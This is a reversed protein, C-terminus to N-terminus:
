AAALVMKYAKDIMPNGEVTRLFLNENYNRTRRIPEAHTAFDSVANVFRYGNRSVDSLDPADFYRRKMDNLLRLNNKRQVEPMDETIPFFEQMFEMVKKDTLKIKSLDDISRGLEGMYTEALMLTERAEHVRSMVNETHKTTWIRKASNLALNLTNQCVVRIPTMAVKIGSSGDHSNMVVLYPAIEDGAIIYRHPMKALMWVKKGGQLAGATEYTVGEGLLDDTFQFADENQVVKYRDSVIGLVANDTNRINAKYGPILAGDGTYVDRQEVRWDLGAYILADISAPAEQVETGLGHWPKERVYFMTEVNAPM